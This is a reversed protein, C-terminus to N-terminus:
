DSAPTLPLKGASAQEPPMYSPTGVIAGSATLNSDRDLRRALGFDTIHPRRETDLLVNSPKLDRHLVGHQHAFEVALAVTRVYEAAQRPPLPHERVLAALSQGEIFDMSFYHQGNHEGVEHIAVISPHQLNAATQAENRFRQVD